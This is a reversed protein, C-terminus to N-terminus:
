ERLVIAILRFPVGRFGPCSFRLKLGSKPGPIRNRTNSKPPYAGRAHRQHQQRARGVGRRSGTGPWDGTLVSRFLVCSVENRTCLPSPNHNRTDSNPLHSWKRDIQMHQAPRDPAISESAIRQCNSIRMGNILSLPLLFRPFSSLLFCMTCM